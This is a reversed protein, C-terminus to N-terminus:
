NVDPASPVRTRKVSQRKGAQSAKPKPARSPLDGAPTPEAEPYTFRETHSKVLLARIEDLRVLELDVAAIMEERTM